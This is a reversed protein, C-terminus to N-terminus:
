YNVVEFGPKKEGAANVKGHACLDALLFAIARNNIACDSRM